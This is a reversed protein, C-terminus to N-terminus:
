MREKIIYNRANVTRPHLLQKRQIVYSITSDIATIIAGDLDNLAQTRIVEVGPFNRLPEIYDSLFIIKELLSMNECGTTHNLIAELVAEDDIEYEIGALKAGIPGHLLEPQIREIEDAEIGLESCLKLAEEGRIDRACDHLLGAVAARDKDAGFRVALEVATNMVNQSHSFRKPSISNKLKLAMEEKTM